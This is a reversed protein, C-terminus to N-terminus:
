YSSKFVKMLKKCARMRNWKGKLERKTNKQLMLMNAKVLELTWSRSMLAMLKLKEKKGSLNGNMLRNKIILQSTLQM